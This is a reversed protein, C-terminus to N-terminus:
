GFHSSWTQIWSIAVVKWPPWFYLLTATAEAALLGAGGFVFQRMLRGRYWDWAAMLAILLMNGYFTYVFWVVPSTPQQPWLWGSFRAFGPDALAVTTLIMIRRHAAPNKRLAMGWAVLSVFSVINQFAIAIFAPDYVPGGKINAAESAMIAVPGMVAMICAWAALLWGLKRHIDVRDRVVLLVQATILLTWVTFIAGHVHVILPAAPNEHLYRPFDVGFGAILGVWWIALWVASPTRDDRASWAGRTHLINHSAPTARTTAM